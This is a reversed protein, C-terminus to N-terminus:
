PRLASLEIAGEGFKELLLPEVYRLWSVATAPSLAREDVLFRRYKTVTEEAATPAASVAAPTAGIQRLMAILRRM